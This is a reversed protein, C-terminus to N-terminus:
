HRISVVTWWILATPIGLWAIAAFVLAMMGGEGPV